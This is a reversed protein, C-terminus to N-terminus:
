KERLGIILHTRRKKIKWARGRSGARWRHLTPAANAIATSVIWREEHFSNYKGKANAVASLLSRLVPRAAGKPCVSLQQIAQSVTQSRIMNTVLGVKRPSIRLFRHKSIVEEKNGDM